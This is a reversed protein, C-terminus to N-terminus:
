DRDEDDLEAIGSVDAIEAGRNDRRLAEEMMWRRM